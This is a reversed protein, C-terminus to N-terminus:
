QQRCHHQSGARRSPCLFWIGVIKPPWGRRLINGLESKEMLGTVPASSGGPFPVAVSPAGTKADLHATYWATVMVTRVGADRIAGVFARSDERVADELGLLGVLRMAGPTGEAVGLVRQGRQIIDQAGPEWVTDAAGALKAVVAPAGKM